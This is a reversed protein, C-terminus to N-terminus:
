TSLMIRLRTLLKQSEWNLVEGSLLLLIYRIEPNAWNSLLIKLLRLSYMMYLEATKAEWSSLFAQSDEWETEGTSLNRNLIHTRITKRRMKLTKLAHKEPIVGNTSYGKSTLSWKLIQIKQLRYTGPKMRGNPTTSKWTSITRFVKSRKKSRQQLSTLYKLFSKRRNKKASPGTMM